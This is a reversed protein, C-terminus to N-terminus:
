AASRAAGRRDCVDCDSLAAARDSELRMSEPLPIDPLYRQNVPAARMQRCQEPDRAWLTVRHAASLTIALATGWAGAGLVALNM